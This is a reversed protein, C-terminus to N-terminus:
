YISSEWLRHMESYLTKSICVDYKAPDEAKVMAPDLSRIGKICTERAEMLTPQEVTLGHQKDWVTLVLEKVVAPVLKKGTNKAFANFVCVEKGGEPVKEDKQVMFDMFPTHKENYFRFVRKRGPILVKGFDASLKIRPKGNLETLKFVGGLAPQAQCTVLNTGIGFVTIGHGQENFEKLSKENIDSSAVVDMTRFINLKYKDAIEHLKEHCELSLAALDGSDLRVGNPKYGCEILALAVVIYNKLGSQITDYTDVLCLFAAPFAIAYAIFAALEGENTDTYELEKRYKLVLELLDVIENGKKVTTPAAKLDDLSVFSMVFSHAHTGGVPLGLLKGAQVNAIADFGGVMCYKSASFAGDPGQARRLGFEVCKPVKGNIQKDGYQGKAAIVMRSANTALLSPFNILNLLTTELLQAIVIPGSVILLPVRPFVLSGMPLSEIKIESCDLKSLYEFFEPECHVMSPVTKLYAIDEATFKFNSVFKLAEDIGCFITYSGHFPNKRFFLEFVSHENQRNTKWYGYAMTLQYLDTHLPTVLNNTPPPLQPIMIDDDFEEHKSACCNIFKSPKCQPCYYYM